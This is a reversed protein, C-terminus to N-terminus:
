VRSKGHCYYSCKRNKSSRFCCGKYFLMLWSFFPIFSILTGVQAHNGSSHTIFTAKKGPINELCIANMAGRLKFSGSGQFNECKVLLSKCQIMKALTRSSMLPTEDIHGKLREEAQQIDHLAIAYKAMQCFFLDNLLRRYKLMSLRFSFLILM